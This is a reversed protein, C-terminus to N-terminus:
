SGLYPEHSLRRSDASPAPRLAVMWGDKRYRLGAFLSSSFYVIGVLVALESLFKQAGGLVALIALSFFLISSGILLSRSV